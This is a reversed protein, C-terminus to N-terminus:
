RAARPERNLLLLIVPAVVGAALAAVSAAYDVTGLIGADTAHFVLHLTNFVLVAALVLRRIRRDRSVAGAVLLVGLTLFTSGLDAVLHHNYPPYGATWHHGFGPFTEFFQRPAVLAWVGWWVNAAALVALGIRVLRDRGM